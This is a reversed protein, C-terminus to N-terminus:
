KPNGARTPTARVSRIYTSYGEGKDKAGGGGGLPLDRQGQRNASRTTRGGRADSHGPNRVPKEVNECGQTDSVNSVIEADSILREQVAVPAKELDTNTLLSPDFTRVSLPSTAM